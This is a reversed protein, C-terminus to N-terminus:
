TCVVRGRARRLRQWSPGVQWRKRRGKGEKKGVDFAEAGDLGLGARGDRSWPGGRSGCAWRDAEGEDELLEEGSGPIMRLLPEIPKGRASGEEGRDESAELDAARVGM